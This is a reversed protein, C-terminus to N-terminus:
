HTNKDIFSSNIEQKNVVAKNLDISAKMQIIM